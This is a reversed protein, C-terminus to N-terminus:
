WWWAPIQQYSLFNCKSCLILKNFERNMHMKRYEQIKESNWIEKITNEKINGLIVEGDYDLCCLAVDGNVLVVLHHWLRICPHAQQFSFNIENNRIKNCWTSFEEVTVKDVIKSWKKVFDNLLKQTEEMKIISITIILKKAKMKNRLNVFNIINKSVEDFNLNVRIKEYIEKSVGDFSINVSDVELEILKKANEENLLSGNTFISLHVDKIRRAYEIYEDWNKNMFMEGNLFPHIIKV